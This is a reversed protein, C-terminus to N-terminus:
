RDLNLTAANSCLWVVAEAIEEPRGLRGIPLTAAFESKATETTLFRGLMETEIGHPAIANVRINQKAYELAVTKTLGLVAHKSAVYTSM